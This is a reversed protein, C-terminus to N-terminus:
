PITVPIVDLSAVAGAHIAAVAIGGAIGIGMGLVTPEQAQMTIRPTEYAEVFRTAALYAGDPPLAWSVVVRLGLVNMGFAAAGDSTGSANTAGLVPFAPRGDTAKLSGLTGWANTGCFLVNPLEGVAAYIGGAAAYLGAEIDASIDGAAADVAALATAAITETGRAYADALEEGVVSLVAPSTFAISEASVRTARKVYAYTFTVDTTGLTDRADALEAVVAADSLPDTIVPRTFSAGGGPGSRPGLATVVPRSADRLSVAQGVIPVPILGPVDATTTDGAAARVSARYASLRQSDRQSHAYLYEGLSPAPPRSSLSIRPLASSASPPPEGGGTSPAPEVPPTSPAPQSAAVPAPAPPPPAAPTAPSDPMASGRQAAVRSIGSDDGFAPSTVLALHRPESASVVMVEDGSATTEYRYETPEIAVSFGRLVRDAALILADDGAAVASVRASIDLGAESDTEGTVIGVPISEDHHLVLPQGAMSVSGRELRIRQGTSTTADVNWPAARGEITRRPGSAAITAACM